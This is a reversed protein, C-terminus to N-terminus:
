ATRSQVTTERQTGLRRVLLLLVTGVVLYFGVKLSNVPDGYMIRFGLFFMWAVRFVEIVTENQNSFMGDALRLGAGFLLLLIVVGIIGASYYGLSILDIPIPGGFQDGNLSNSTAPLNIDFLRKPVLYAIALPFDIFFRYPIQYPVAYCVTNAVTALPFAFESLISAPVSYNESGLLVIKRNLTDPDLLLHSVQEGFLIVVVSLILGFITTRAKLRGRIMMGVMPFIMIYSFFRLRGAMHFQLVLSMLFTVLFLGCHLWNRPKGKFDKWLAYFIFSAAFVLSSVNKLFGFRTEIPSDGSRLAGAYKILEIFGGIEAAYFILSLGGALGLLSGVGLLGSQSFFRNRHLQLSINSRDPENCIASVISGSGRYGFFLLLYGALAFLEAYILSFRELSNLMLWNLQSQPRGSYSTYDIMIPCAVFVIFYVLSLFSFFDMLRHNKPRIAEIGVILLGLIIAIFTLM